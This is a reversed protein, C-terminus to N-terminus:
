ILGHLIKLLEDYEEGKFCFQIEQFKKRMAKVQDKVQKKDRVVDAILQAVQQFDEKEMGFRTMESTGLRLAGSATFGEDSPAAQYNCIINGAELEGAIEPGRSYGVNLIVQHTETFDIAPDGAVDMGCDRL